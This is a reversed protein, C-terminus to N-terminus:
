IPAEHEIKGPSYYKEEQSIYKNRPKKQKPLRFDKIKKLCLTLINKIQKM